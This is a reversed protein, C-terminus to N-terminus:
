AKGQGRRRHRVRIPKGPWPLKFVAQRVVGDGPNSLGIITKEPQSRGGAQGIEVAGTEVCEIQGIRNKPSIAAHDHHQMTAGATLPQPQVAAGDSIQVTILGFDEGRRLAERVLLDAFHDLGAVAREPREKMALAADDSLSFYHVDWGQLCQRRALEGRETAVHVPIDPPYLAAIQTHTAFIFRLAQSMHTIIRNLQGARLTSSDPNTGGPMQKM